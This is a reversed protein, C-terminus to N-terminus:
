QKSLVLPFCFWPLNLPVVFSEFTRLSSQETEWVRECDECVIVYDNM